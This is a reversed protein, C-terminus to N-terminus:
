NNIIHISTPLEGKWDMGIPLPPIWRMVPKRLPFVGDRLGTWYTHWLASWVHPRPSAHSGATADNDIGALSTKPRGNFRHIAASISFALSGLVRSLLM